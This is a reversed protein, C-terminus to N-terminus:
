SLDYHKLYSSPKSIRGTRTVYQYKDKNRIDSKNSNGNIQVKSENNILTETNTVENRSNSLDDNINGEWVQDFM